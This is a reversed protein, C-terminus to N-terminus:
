LLPHASPLRPTTQGLAQRSFSPPPPPELPPSPLPSRQTGLMSPCPPPNSHTTHLRHGAGVPSPRSPSLLTMPRRRAAADLCASVRVMRCIMFWANSSVGRRRIRARRGEAQRAKQEPRGGEPPRPFHHRRQRKASAMARVPYRVRIEGRKQAWSLQWDRLLFQLSLPGAAPPPCLASPLLPLSRTAAAAAVGRGGFSGGAALCVGRESRSARRRLPHVAPQTHRARAM